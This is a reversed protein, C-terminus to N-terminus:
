GKTRAIQLNCAFGDQAYRNKFNKGHRQPYIWIIGHDGCSNSARGHLLYAQQTSRPWLEMTISGVRATCCHQIIVDGLCVGVLDLMDINLSKVPQVSAGACSMYTVVLM